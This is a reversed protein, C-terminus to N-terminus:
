GGPSGDSYMGIQEMVNRGATSLFKSDTVSQLQICFPRKWKSTIENIINFFNAQEDADMDCFAQAIESVTPDIKIIETREIM